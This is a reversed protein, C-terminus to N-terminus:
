DVLLGLEDNTTFNGPGVAIAAGHRRSWDLAVDFLSGAVEADDVADFFGVWAWAQHHLENFLSDICAGIRGVPRGARHATWLAWRQHAAAPHRPSLRDYVSLRLPPVWAPNDGHLRYPVDVFVRKAWRWRTPRVETRAM